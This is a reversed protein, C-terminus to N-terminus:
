WEKLDTLRCNTGHGRYTLNVLLQRAELRKERCKKNSKRRTKRRKEERQHHNNPQPLPPPPRERVNDRTILPTVETFYCKFPSWGYKVTKLGFDGSEGLRYIIVGDVLWLM